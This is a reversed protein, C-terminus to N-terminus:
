VTVPRWKPYKEDTTGEESFLVYSVLADFAASLKREFIDKSHPESLVDM